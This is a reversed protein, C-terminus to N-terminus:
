GVANYVDGKGAASRAFMLSFEAMWLSDIITREKLRPPYVAAQEKLRAMRGEPDWLPLCVLTERLYTVNYFGFPPQQDFDRCLVGQRASDIARQVHELSRYLFDVRGAATDLWAGGNVWAGWECFGTVVPNPRM